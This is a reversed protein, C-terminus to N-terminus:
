RGAVLGRKDSGTEKERDKQPGKKFLPDNTAKEAEHAQGPSSSPMLPKEHNEQSEM